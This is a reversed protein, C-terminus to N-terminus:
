PELAPCGDPPRGAVIRDFVALADSEDFLGVRVGPWSAVDSRHIMPPRKDVAVALPDVGLGAAVVARHLGPGTILGVRVDGAVLVQAGVYGEAVRARYGHTAVAETLAAYREYELQGLEDSVPGFHKHGAAVGLEAGTARSEARNFRDVRDLRSAFDLGAEASWPLAVAQPPERGTPRDPDVGLM